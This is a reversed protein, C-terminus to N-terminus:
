NKTPLPNPLIVKGVGATIDVDNLAYEIAKVKEEPTGYFLKHFMAGDGNKQGVGLFKSVEGLNGGVQYQGLAWISRLDIFYSPWYRNNYLQISSTNIGHKWARRVIYPLDFEFINWGVIVLEGNFGKECVNIFRQIIDKDSNEDGETNACFDLYSPGDDIKYGITAAYSAMPNLSAKSIWDTKKEEISASIKAADKYNSPAEFVPMMETLKILNYPATEADTYIIKM